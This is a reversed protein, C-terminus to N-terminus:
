SPFIDHAYASILSNKLYVHEVNWPLFFIEAFFYLDLIDCLGNNVFSNDDNTSITQAFASFHVQRHIHM